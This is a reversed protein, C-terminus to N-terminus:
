FKRQNVLNKETIDPVSAHNFKQQNWPLVVVIWQFNTTIERTIILNPCLIRHYIEHCVECDGVMQCTMSCYVAGNTQKECTLCVDPMWGSRTDTSNARSMYESCDQRKNKSSHHKLNQHEALVNEQEALVNEKLYAFTFHPTSKHIYLLFLSHPCWIQM